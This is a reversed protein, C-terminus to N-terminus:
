FQLRMIERYADMVKTRVQLLMRFSLDAEQLRLMGEHVGMKGEIVQTAAQDSDIQERNAEKIAEKLWQGFGESQNQPRATPQLTKAANIADISKM